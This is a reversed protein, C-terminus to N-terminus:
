KGDLDGEKPIREFGKLININTVVIKDEEVHCSLQCEAGDVTLPELWRRRARTPRTPYPTRAMEAFIRQIILPPLRCRKIADPTAIIQDISPSYWWPRQRRKRSPVALM